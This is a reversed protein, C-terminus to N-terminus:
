DPWTMNVYHCWARHPLNRLLSARTDTTNDLSYDGPDKTKLVPPLKLAIAAARVLIWAPFVSKWLLNFKNFLFCSLLFSNSWTLSVNRKGRLRLGLSTAGSSKEELWFEDFSIINCKSKPTIVREAYGYGHKSKFTNLILSQSM